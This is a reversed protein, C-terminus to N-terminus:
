TAIKSHISKRVFIVAFKQDSIFPVTQSSSVKRSKVLSFIDCYSSQIGVEAKQRLSTALVWRVDLESLNLKLEM